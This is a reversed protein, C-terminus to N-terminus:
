VPIGPDIEYSDGIETRLGLQFSIKKYKKAFQSYFGIIDEEYITSGTFEPIEIWQSDFFTETIFDNEIKSLKTLYGLELKSNNKLPNVYDVSILYREFNENNYTRDMGRFTRIPFVQNEEIISKEDTVSFETNVGFKLEHKEKSFKLNYGLNSQILRNIESENESRNFLEILENLNFDEYRINNDNDADSFRFTIDGILQNKPNLDLNGGVNILTYLQNRIRESEQFVKNPINEFNDVFIRNEGKPESYGLGTNMFWSSYDNSGNLNINTGVNLLYGSFLEISGNLRKKKGKKLVVNIIGGTGNSVYKSSPNTIVEIKEISSAPISRFSNANKALGSPRGDILVQIDGSGRISINGDSELQVSPLNQAVDYLTGGKSSLDKSLDYTKKDLDIQYSSNNSIGIFNVRTNRNLYLM